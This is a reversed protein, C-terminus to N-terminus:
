IIYYSQRKQKQFLQQLYISNGNGWVINGYELYPLILTHYLMM